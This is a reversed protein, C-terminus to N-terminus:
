AMTLLKDIDSMPPGNDDDEDEVEMVVTDVPVLDFQDRVLEDPNLVLNCSELILRLQKTMNMVVAELNIIDKIEEPFGNAYLWDSNFYVNNLATKDLRTLWKDMRDALVRDEMGAVWNKLSTKNPLDLPIKVTSYPPLPLAGYKPAFVEEWMVHRQYPSKDRGENYSDEANIRGSVLYLTDGRSIYDTIVNEIRIVNNIIEKLYLKEGNSAKELIEDMLAFGAEISEIPVTSNRLHVGKIELKRKAYVNGERVRTDAYYHKSANTSTHISWLYENKYAIDRLRDKPVNMNKSLISLQQTVAESAIYTLMGTIPVSNEDFKFYGLMLQVLEDTSYGSSDTDSLTVARRRLDRLKFNNMPTIKTKIFAKFYSQYKMVMSAVHECTALLNTALVGETNIEKYDKGKGKLEELFIDHVFMLIPEYYGYLAGLDELPETATTVKHTLDNFMQRTFSENYVFMHKLDLTYVMAARQYPTCKDLYPIIFEQYYSEDVCYIDTSYKLVDVVDQTSPLHLDFEDVARKIAEQDCYTSENIVSRFADRVTFLARNGALLRENTANNISVTTRTTSTLTSHNTSNFVASSPMCFLGSLGNNALKFNKEQSSASAAEEVMGKAEYEFGKKKVESRRKVNNTVYESILSPKVHPPLYTTFTPAIINESAVNEAIFQILPTHLVERDQNEKRRYHQVIPNKLDEKIICNAVHKAKEYDCGKEAIIVSILQERYDTIPSIKNKYDDVYDYMMGEM